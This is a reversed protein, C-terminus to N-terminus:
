DIVGFLGSRIMEDAFGRIQDASPPYRDTKEAIAPALREYIPRVGRYYAASGDFAVHDNRLLGLAGHPRLATAALQYRKTEDVWHFATASVVLDFTSPEISADEFRQVLLRATGDHLHRALRRALREGPELATVRFGREVLPRTLQGTGAGVELVDGGDPVRGVDLLADIAAAPYTPRFRDYLTPAEDFTTARSPGSAMCAVSASVPSQAAGAGSGRRRLRRSAM